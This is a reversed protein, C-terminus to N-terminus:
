SHVSDQEDLSADEPALAELLLKRVWPNPRYNSTFHGEEGNYHRSLASAVGASRSRGAECHVVFLRVGSEIQRRVFLAVERAMDPSFAVVHPTRVNLRAFREDVDSFHLALVGKCSPSAVLQPHKHGPDTISIVAYPERHTVAHASARDLVQLFM